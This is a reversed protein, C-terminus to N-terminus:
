LSNLRSDKILISRISDITLGDISLCEKALTVVDTENKTLKMNHLVVQISKRTEENAVFFKVLPYYAMDDVPPLTNDEYEIRLIQSVQMSTLTNFFTLVAEVSKAEVRNVITRSACKLQVQYKAM